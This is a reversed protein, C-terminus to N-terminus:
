KGLFLDLAAASMAKVGTRITLPPYPAFQPSHLGPLPTGKKQSEEYKEPEVAGLWFICIPIKPEVRGYQSFDEGAMMPKHEWVNEEGIIRAIAKMVRRTLAPDNYTAPTFEDQVIVQPMRDEPVGNAMAIGRVIRRIAQITHNRVDDTYSRLTLQLRVEDPIINHKTGGHISGVTVVAPQIPEIERSVITQLAMITEAAMVIPDKTTHPYAGHGGVGRIIVDVADVNALAYGETYGVTGAPMSSDDHLALAYDPRPFKEFLGDKLMARAGAGREEAPQGVMLLTGHWSDKLATLVRAVGLFVTMHLDHGCAHMVPVENGRDDLMRVKSAYPLGTKEEVPLADMDARVMVTPGDGNRLVGVVGYGGIGTTVEFGLKRLETALRASTNKEQFSLEPHQHFHRYLDFLEPYYKDALVQIRPILASLEAKQAPALGASGMLLLLALVRVYRLNM